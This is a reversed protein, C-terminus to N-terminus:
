ASRERRQTARSKSCSKRVSNKDWGWALLEMTMVSRLEAGLSWICEQSQSNQLMVELRSKDKGVVYEYCIPKSLACVSLCLCVVGLFLDFSRISLCALLCVFLMHLVNDSIMQDM